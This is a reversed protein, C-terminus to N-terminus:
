GGRYGTTHTVAFSRVGLGLGGGEAFSPIHTSGIPPQEVGGNGSQGAAQGGASGGSPDYGGLQRTVASAVSSGISQPPARGPQLRAIDGISQMNHYTRVGYGLSRCTTHGFQAPCQGNSDAPVEYCIGTSDVATCTRDVDSALWNGM